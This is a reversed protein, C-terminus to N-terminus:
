DPMIKKNITQSIKDSLAKHTKLLPILNEAERRTKEILPFDSLSAIRLTDKGHQSTGYMDGPGRLRLDLEALEAGFHVRELYKLREQTTPNKSDTFLLCYSEKLGRGVRGRLQHLQALGFREAAEIVMITANTIDIGVEVVPTAVLIDTNGKKFDQLVNEKEGSKLKGHILGLKLNKFIDKQLREYEKVAAKVTTMNESEEIFPCVIFVQSKTEKIQKEIWKYANGRKEEPVLWTKIMKRGKPMEDLYSLSLDGYLTLFVTRPIPTATMTLFHPNEGKQRLIGRQEVGFRQQEDIVVLGLKDFSIKKQLLAHTGVVIKLDLNEIKPKKSGTVLEVPINLPKFLESITQYHQQALIETPAMLASQFGNLYSVYMAIAAVVTKGAGVDGELMRNMPTTSSLDSFIEDLAKRQANTLEFPLNEWFKQIQAAYKKIEFPKTHKEKKWEEKLIISSAQVFLLEDFSLRYRANEAKEIDDPFHIQNLAENISILKNDKLTKGPLYEQFDTQDLLIKIRNRLWKSSVGRTESYVPVLRGTHIPQPNKEDLLEYDKVFLTRKKSFFDVRGSISVFDGIQLTKTIFIQNFWTCEIEGTDDTVTVKQLSFGRKTFINKKGTIKGQITVTEGVQAIAIKSIISTDEYRFPAYYLLEELTSIGLKELKKAHMRFTLGANGIPTKLDM